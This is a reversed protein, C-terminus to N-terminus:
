GPSLLLKRLEFLATSTIRRKGRPRSVVQGGKGDTISIFVTGTPGSAEDIGTIGIGINAKLRSKVAEAMAKAVEASVAGHKSIAEAKVGFAIKAQDSSAILGGRFFRTSEPVDTLSATLWGGSYDEMIALTLGREVLLRGIATELTDNDTGWIYDGLVKRIKAEGEALIAEAQKQSEARTKLRLQIGDPKAYVGLAPNESPFLPFAMEGVAAESLGLTKFSRALIVFKSGQQLRPQVEKQWMEQMERPPGPLAILSRGDREVWWGPATGQANKLSRASPILTAQRLNSQPMNMGWHDFRQRLERELSADIALKEGLMEAIAERTLDDATPGLGGSTLVLDSRQWARKIVEVLRSLDDGVQSVWHLDIGLLVLQSALYSANTDTTEGLLLESGISVIEAKV